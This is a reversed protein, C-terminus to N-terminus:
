THERGKGFALLGFLLTLLIVLTVAGIVYPMNTHEAEEAALLMTTLM